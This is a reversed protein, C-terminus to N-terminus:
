VARLSVFISSRSNFTLKSCHQSDNSLRDISSDSSNLLILISSVTKSRSSFALLIEALISRKPGTFKAAIPSNSVM